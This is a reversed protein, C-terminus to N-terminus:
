REDITVPQGRDASKRCLTMLRMVEYSEQPPCVAPREKQAICRTFYQLQAVFADEESVEPRSVGNQFTYLTLMNSASAREEINGAVRFIYELSGESGVVRIGATFPWTEPMLYSAETVAVADQYTLSTVVHDWAGRSSKIGVAYM